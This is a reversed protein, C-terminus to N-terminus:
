LGLADKVGKAAEKVNEAAEKVNEAQEKVSEAQEKVNEVKQKADEVANQASEVVEKAEEVKEQADQVVGIQQLLGNAIDEVNQETLTNVVSKVVENEGVLATVKEANTKLFEQAKNLYEKAKEPNDKLLQAAKEYLSTLATQFMNADGSELQAAMDAVAEDATKEAVAEVEAQEVQENNNKSGCSTLTFTAVAIAMLFIKKM